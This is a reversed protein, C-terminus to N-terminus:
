LLATYAVAVTAVGAAILRAVSRGMRGLLLVVIGGAFPLLTLVSVLPLNNSM